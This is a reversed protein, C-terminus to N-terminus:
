VIAIVGSASSRGVFHKPMNKAVTVIANALLTLNLISAGSAAYQEHQKHQKVLIHALEGTQLAFFATELAFSRTHNNHLVIPYRYFIKHLQVNMQVAHASDFAVIHLTYHERKFRIEQVSVM